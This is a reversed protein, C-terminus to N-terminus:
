CARYASVHRPRERGGRGRRGVVCVRLSAGAAAANASLASADAMALREKLDVLMRASGDVNNATVWAELQLCFCSLGIDSLKPQWVCRALQLRM